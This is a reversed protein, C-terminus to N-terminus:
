RDLGLSRQRLRGITLDRDITMQIHTYRRQEFEPKWPVLSFAQEREIMAFRGAQGTVQVPRAGPMSMRAFVGDTRAEEGRFPNETLQWHQLFDSVTM